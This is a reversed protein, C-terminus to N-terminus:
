IHSSVEKSVAPCPSGLVMGARAMGRLQRGASVLDIASSVLGGLHLVCVLEAPVSCPSDEKSTLM